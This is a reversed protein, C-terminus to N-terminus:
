IGLDSLREAIEEANEESQTKYSEWTKEDWIEIRSQVGFIVIKKELKAYKRLYEPILVRGQSDIEAEVAGSLMLRSFARSDKQSIPLKTIKEVVKEWETKSYGFLCNDIGRTIVLGESLKSRFKAPIATRGKADLNHRYEGILMVNDWIM